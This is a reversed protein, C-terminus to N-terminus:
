SIHAEQINMTDCMRVYSEKIAIALSSPMITLYGYKWESGFKGRFLIERM